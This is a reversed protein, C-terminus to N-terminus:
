RTCDKSTGLVIFHGMLSFSLHIPCFKGDLKRQGTLIKTTRWSQPLFSFSAELSIYFLKHEDDSLQFNQHCGRRFLWMMWREMQWYFCLGARWLLIAFGADRLMQSSNLRWQPPHSFINQQWHQKYYGCKDLAVPPSIYSFAVSILAPSFSPHVNHM